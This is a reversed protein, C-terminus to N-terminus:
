GAWRVYGTLFPDPLHEHKPLVRVSIGREGSTEFSTSGEFTYKGKAGGTPKMDQASGDLLDGHTDVKGCYLQVVVDEPTLEGLDVVARVTLKGGVVLSAATTTVDLIKIASWQQRIKALWASYVQGESLTPTTLRTFHRHSPIYYRETYERVMRHTSFFAGLREISTKMMEIWGHPLRDRGREYFTPIIDTELINYFARSEIEDQLDEQDPPYEEGNGIAWGIGPAYGEAWWGDLISANLGGNYIVKMGSTGSAEKPRRPTNLWVDVGQVMYRAVNMDYNDLFVVSHRLEPHSALQVIERILEKGPQDHPHAKGAFIFQVPFDANNVIKILRQIDRFILTARKYTAFRRAFGITLADPNLFQEAEAVQSQSLGRVIFQEHLRQRAFSVLRERRREHARWLEADPIRHVDKWVDPDSPDTRWTPLLYRDFLVGMEESVWTQVHVGNTVHGVPVEAQPLDPFMWQWMNQSVQGHLQSVGNSGSAFKLAMVPLSFLDFGGMSERGLDMFQDRTLGLAEWMWRLHEDILDFGFRELGAPVPTHITYVSGTTLIDKAEEFTLGPNGEMMMRTRELALLASHGENMHVVEPCIDLERLVRIGGIGLLIEQRIRIRRDGGYLRDTLDRLEPPNDPHNADLLYLVVRGVQVKWVWAHLTYQAIPVTIVLRTGDAKKVPQIPLTSYDNIPYAEQQYGDANLYQQFYGEQYLLGMGVLPLGLDSASKLHDGSLVGLGGSYNKFCGTLGFEMSFYAIYPKEAAGYRTRYWTNQDNMYDQYNQWTRELQGMFAPDDVAAQLRDQKMMGLMKVPNRDSAIWTDYDLRVFVQRTEHDWSWRLNYALDLLRELEKPLNPTVTITTIPRVL